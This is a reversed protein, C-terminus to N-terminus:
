PPFISQHLADLLVSSSFPKMLIHDLKCKEKLAPDSALGTMGIIKVDQQTERLLNCLAPGDINDMQFDTIVVAIEAHHEKYITLAQSGSGAALVRYNFSELIQRIVELIALEDDVVLILEDNGPTFDAPTGLRPKASNVPFLVTFTSGARPVSVVDIYGGHGLLISRVTSLGIGSGDPKTTYFSEFIHPLVDDPIGGNNDQVSVRVFEGSIPLPHTSVHFDKLMVRDVALKITGQQNLLSDKANIVLNLLVQHVQTENALIEPVVGSSQVDVKINRPFTEQAVVAIAQVLAVMNVPEKEPSDTGRAFMTLHRVLRIARNATETARSLIRQNEANSSRSVLEHACVIHFLLNNLDHTVGATFSGINEIRQSRISRATAKAGDIANQVTDSLWVLRRKHVFHGAGTKIAAIAQEETISGSVVIIPTLPSLERSLKIAAPGPLKPVAYDVLVADYAKSQLAAEFSERDDVADILATERLQFKILDVDDRSDELLLLTHM